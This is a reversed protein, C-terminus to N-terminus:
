NGDPRALSAVVGLRVQDEAVAFVISITTTAAKAAVASALNGAAIV